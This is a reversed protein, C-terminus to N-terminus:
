ELTEHPVTDASLTGFVHVEHGADRAARAMKIVRADITCPNSVIVAVRAM